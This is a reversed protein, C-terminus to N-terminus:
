VTLSPFHVGEGCIIQIGLSTHCVRQQPTSLLTACVAACRCGRGEALEGAEWSVPLWPLFSTPLVPKVLFYTKWSDRTVKLYKRQLAAASRQDTVCFVLAVSLTKTGSVSESQPTWDEEPEFNGLQGPFNLKEM